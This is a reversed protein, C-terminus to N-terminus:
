TSYCYFQRIAGTLRRWEAGQSNMRMSVENGGSLGVDFRANTVVSGDM